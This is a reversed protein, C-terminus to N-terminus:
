ENRKWFGLSALYVRRAFWAKKNAFFLRSFAPIFYHLLLGNRWILIDHLLDYLLYQRLSPPSFIGSFTDSLLRLSASGPPLKRSELLAERSLGATYPNIPHPRDPGSLMLDPYCDSAAIWYISEFLREFIRLNEAAVRVFESETRDTMLDLHCLQMLPQKTLDVMGAVKQPPVLRSWDLLLKQLNKNLIRVKELIELLEGSPHVIMHQISMNATYAWFVVTDWIFKVAFLRPHGFMEYMGRYFDISIPALLDLVLRNFRAVRDETLQNELDSRVMEVCIANGIAIMDAGVSYLPDVFFAAEGVCGWREVSYLQRAHYSYNKLSHFDLPPDDKLYAWLGPEHEELWSLAQRFSKGYERLPYLTEDTVIGVSTGGSSLPILWVWYGKNMLHNTSTNRDDVTAAQWAPDADGVLDTVKLPRDVHWWAASASHENACGLGLQSQLYRRRGMADFLWRTSVTQKEGGQKSRYHVLHSGSPGGQLDIRDVVTEALWTVGMDVVRDYLDNEFRGRDIQYNAIPPYHVIGVESRKQLPLDTDNIFFRLGLKEIHNEKLYDGMQLERTIYLSSNEVLSEGVKFAIEPVPRALRDLVLMNLQPLNLKLQRALGAGAFGGGCIVVDYDINKHM